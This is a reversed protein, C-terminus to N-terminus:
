RTAKHKGEQISQEASQSVQGLFPVHGALSLFWLLLAVVVTGGIFVGLGTAVGRLFALFFIKKFSAHAAEYLLEIQKAFEVRQADTM